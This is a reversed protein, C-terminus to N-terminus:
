DQETAAFRQQAEFLRLVATLVFQLVGIPGIVQIWKLQVAIVATALRNDSFARSTLKWLYWCFVIGFILCAIAAVHDLYKRIWNPLFGEFLEVTVHQGSQLAPALSLFVVYTFAIQAYDHAWMQPEGFARALTAGVVILGIAAILLCAVFTFLANVGEVTRKFGLYPQSQYFAM